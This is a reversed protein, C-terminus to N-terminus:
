SAHGQASPELADIILLARGAAGAYVREYDRVM